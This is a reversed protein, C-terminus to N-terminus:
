RGPKRKYLWKSRKLTHKLKSWIHGSDRSIQRNSLNSIEVWQRGLGPLGGFFLLSKAGSLRPLAGLNKVEHNLACCVSGASKM